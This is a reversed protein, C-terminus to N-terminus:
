DVRINGVTDNLTKALAEAEAIGTGDPLTLRVQKKGLGIDDYNEFVVFCPENPGREKVTVVFNRKSMATM